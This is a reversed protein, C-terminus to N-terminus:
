KKEKIKFNNGLNADLNCKLLQMDSMDCAFQRRCGALRRALCGANKLEERDFEVIIKDTM